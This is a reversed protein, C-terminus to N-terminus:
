GRAQTGSGAATATATAVLARMVLCTLSTSVRPTAHRPPPHLDMALSVGTGTGPLARM